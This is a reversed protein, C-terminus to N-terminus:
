KIERLYNITGINIEYCGVLNVISNEPVTGKSTRTYILEIKDPSIKKWNGWSSMGGFLLNTSVFEGNSSFKFSAEINSSSPYLWDFGVLCKETKDLNSETKNEKGSCSFLIITFLIFLLLLEKIKM